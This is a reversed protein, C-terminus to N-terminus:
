AIDPQKQLRRKRKQGFPDSTDAKTRQKVPSTRADDTMRRHVASAPEEANAANGANSSVTRAIVPVAYACAPNAAPQPGNKLPLGFM